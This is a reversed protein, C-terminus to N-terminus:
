NHKFSTTHILKMVNVNLQLRVSLLTKVGFVQRRSGLSVIQNQIQQTHYTSVRKMWWCCGRVSRKPKDTLNLNDIFNCSSHVYCFTVTLRRLLSVCLNSLVSSTNFTCFTGRYIIQYSNLPDFLETWATPDSPSRTKNHRTMADCRPTLPWDFCFSFM